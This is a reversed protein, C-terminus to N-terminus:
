LTSLLIICVKVIIVQDLSERSSDVYSRLSIDLVSFNTGLMWNTVDFANLCGGALRVRRGCTGYIPSLHSTRDDGEVAQIDCTVLLKSMSCVIM